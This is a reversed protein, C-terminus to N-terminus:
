RETDAPPREVERLVLHDLITDLRAALDAPRPGELQDAISGLARRVEDLAAQVQDLMGATQRAVARAILRHYWRGFVSRSTTPIRSASMPALEDLAALSARLAATASQDATIRRMHAELREEFHEPYVGADRSEAVRRRLEDTVRAFPDSGPTEADV